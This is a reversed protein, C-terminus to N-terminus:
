YTRGAIKFLVKGICSAIYRMRMQMNKFNKSIKFRAIYKEPKHFNKENGVRAKPDEEESMLSCVRIKTSLVGPLICFVQLRM